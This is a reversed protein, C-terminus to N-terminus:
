LNVTDIVPAFVPNAKSLERVLGFTESSLLLPHGGPGRVEQNQLTHCQFLEDNFDYMQMSDTIECSQLAFNFNFYM